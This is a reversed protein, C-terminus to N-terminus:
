LRVNSQEKSKKQKQMRNKIYFYLVVCLIILVGVASTFIELNHSIWQKAADGYLYILSAVLFFRAGRAFVSVLLMKPLNMGIIGSAITFVKYPVPTFGAIAIALVDYKRLSEKGKELKEEGIIKRMIPEGGFKGILWGIIAGLVSGVTCITAFYFSKQPDALCLPIMVFDPPVPFFSSEIIALIFLGMPGHEIFPKSWQDFKQALLGFQFSATCYAGTIMGFISNM